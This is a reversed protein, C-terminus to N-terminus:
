CISSVADYVPSIHPKINTSDSICSFCDFAVLSFFNSNFL